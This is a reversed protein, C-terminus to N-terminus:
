YARAQARRIRFQRASVALADDLTTVERAALLPLMRVFVEATVLADGLASHRAEIAVGLRSAIADLTHDSEHDHLFSSLLATDLVPMGFRTGGRESALALFKMDFAANHAVLAADGVFRRFRPLTEALPPCGAVDADAIGHVRTALAPIPRGPDVREDFREHARVRGNVVRVAAISVIEDGRAPELGTTETDFVVLDLAALSRTGAADESTGRGRGFLDFDYFFPRGALRAGDPRASRATPVSAAGRARPGAPVARSSADARRTDPRTLSALEPEASAAREGFALVYGEIAGDADRLLSVTGTLISAGGDPATGHPVTGGVSTRGDRVDDSGFRREGDSAPAVRRVEVGARLDHRAGEGETELAGLWDDLGPLELAEGVARGLGLPAGVGVIEHARANALLVRHARNAVLVGVDLRDLVDALRTEATVSADDRESALGEGDGAVPVDRGLVRRLTPVLPGLYRLSEDDLTAGRREPVHAATEVERALRQLATAVYRDFLRWVSLWLLVLLLAAVGTCIALLRLGEAAGHEAAAVNGLVIAVALACPAALTPVAFLLFVRWRLDARELRELM